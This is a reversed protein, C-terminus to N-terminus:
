DDDNPQAVDYGGEDGRGHGPPGENYGTPDYGEVGEPLEGDPSWTSIAAYNGGMVQRNAEWQDQDYSWAAKTGGIAWDGAGIRKKELEVKQLNPPLKDIKDIFRQHERENAEEIRQKVVEPNYSLREAKYKEVCGKIFGQLYSDSRGPDPIQEEEEDIPVFDPNILQGIPGFFLVRLLATMFRSTQVSSLTDSFQIRSVRLESSIDLIQSLQRIFYDMKINAKEIASEDEGEEVELPRERLYDTHNSLIDEIEKRHPEALKLDTTVRLYVRSNYNRYIRQAPILFYSRLVEFITEVPEKFLDRAIINYYDLGLLAPLMRTEYNKITDRLPALAIVIEADATSGHLDVLNKMAKSLGEAFGTVPAEELLRYKDLIQIPSEPAPSKYAKFQNRAHSIDLIRQFMEDTITISNKDIVSQEFLRRKELYAAYEKENKSTDKDPFFVETPIEIGCWDCKHDVGMEHPLGMNPGKYCLYFLVNYAIDLSLTANFAQLGRPVIPVYLITQRAYGPKLVRLAPKSPLAVQTWFQNPQHIPDFCCSTETFPSGSIVIAKGVDRVVRNAGRIWADAKLFEGLEGRVGEPITPSAAANLNAEQEKEPRPLFGAPLRETPRGAAGAGYIESIYERKKAYAQKISIDKMFINLYAILTERISDRAKQPNAITQFGNIWPETKQVIGAVACAMYQIGVSKEPDEPKAEADLPYGGFGATCGRVVYKVPYDPRHTQLEIFLLALAISIKSRAIYKNFPVSTEKKKYQKETLLLKCQSEGRELIHQISDPDLDVGLTDCLVKLIKYLETKIDSEFRLEDEKELSFGLLAHIRETRLQDPDVLVSRGMMPRGEDDYEISTSYELDAIPQGCHRCIYKNGARGGAFNLIIQKQLIDKEKPHLFQQIQLVEHKCIFHKNCVLCTIWNPSETDVGGDFRALLKTLLAMRRSNDEVKRVMNLEKVHKCPNVEPARGKEKELQTMRRQIALEDVTIQRKFDLKYRELAEPNQALAAYFYDQAYKLFYAVIAMDINAYNPTQDAMRKLLEALGEQTSINKRMAELFDVTLLLHATPKENPKNAEERLKRIYEQLSVIVQKVREDIVVQQEQTFENENIGLDYKLSAIDGGGKPILNQLLSRLYETFDIEVAGEDTTKIYMIKQADKETTVGKSDHLIEQMWSKIAFSRELTDWLKGTRIAGMAGELVFKYPFVLNGELKAKDGQIVIEEGAPTGRTTAGHGRRLSFELGSLFSEIDAAYQARKQYPIKELGQIGPSGPANWRFFDLDAPFTFNGSTPYMDGLPYQSFYGSLMQYWRPIGVGEQGVPIGGMEDFYKESFETVNDLKESKLEHTDMLDSRGETILLRKTKLVPRVIPVNRNQFIDNLTHLSIDKEGEPMGSPSRRILSNKLASLVEVIARIRKLIHPNRQSTEDLVSRLDELLSSKQIREDYVKEGATKEVFRIVDPIEIDGEIEIADEEEEEEPQVLSEAQEAAEAPVSSPKIRLVDFDEDLPIGAGNFQITREAGTSDRITITDQEPNVAIITLTPGPASAKYTDLEQGEQLGHLAVFGVGPGKSLLAIEDGIELEPDFGTGTEGTDPDTIEVFPFDVLRDSVGDPLIRLMKEPNLYYITGRTKGRKWPIEYRDGLEMGTEEEEEEDQSNGEEVEEDSENANEEVNSDAAIAPGAALAEPLQSDVDQNTESNSSNSSTNTNSNSNSEGTGSESDSM